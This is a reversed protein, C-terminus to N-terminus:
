VQLLSDGQSSATNQSPDRFLRTVHAPLHLPLPAEPETRCSRLASCRAARKAASAARKGLGCASPPENRLFTLQRLSSPAPGGAGSVAAGTGEAERGHEGRPM